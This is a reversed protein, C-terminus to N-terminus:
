YFGLKKNGIVRINRINNDNVRLKRKPREKPRKRLSLSMEKFM